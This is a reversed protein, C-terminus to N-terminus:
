KMHPLRAKKRTKVALQMTPLSQAATLDIPILIQKQKKILYTALCTIITIRDIFFSLFYFFIETVKKRTKYIKVNEVMCSDYMYM